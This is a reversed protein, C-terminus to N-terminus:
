KLRWLPTYTGDENEQYKIEHTSSSYGRRTELDTNVHRQATGKSYYRSKGMFTSWDKTAGGTGPVFQPGKEM